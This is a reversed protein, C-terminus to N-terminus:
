KIREYKFLRSDPFEKVEKRGHEPCGWFREKEVFILKRGCDPCVPNCRLGTACQCPYCVDSSVPSGCDSFERTEVDTVVGCYACRGKKIEVIMQKM